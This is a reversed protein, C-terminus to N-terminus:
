DADTDRQPYEPFPGRGGIGRAINMTPTPTPTPTSTPTRHEHDPDVPM